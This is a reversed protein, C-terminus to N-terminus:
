VKASDEITKKEEAAGLQDLPVLASQVTLIDSGEVFPLNEKQRIEARTMWGNQSASSYLAARGASDARLFGELNFEAYLGKAKDAPTLLHRKIEQEIRGLIPRLCYTVFRLNTQELGTGWSTNKETHGIMAPPVGFWRCVDEVSYSKSELLQADEPPMSLPKYEMGGELVIIGGSRAVGGIQGAINKRLDDRQEAKLVNPLTLAGGPRMGNSFLRGTTEELALANGMSNAGYQVVSLGMRGDLTLGPIHMIQDERYVKQTEGTNHTYEIRGNKERRMSIQAPNLPTLAIVTGDERKQKLAYSNGGLLIGAVLMQWFTFATMDANPSDHLISYLAHGKEAKAIGREDKSFVGCPLSGISESILKVCGWVASVTLASNPTVSKGSYNEGLYASSLEPMSVPRTFFSFINSIGM